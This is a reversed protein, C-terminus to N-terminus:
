LSENPSTTTLASRIDTRAFDDGVYLLPCGFEEATAYSFCDGFNLAASHFGKGFRQYAIAAREARTSTLPIIEAESAAILMKMEVLRQNRSAVIYAETVTAASILLRQSGDSLIDNCEAAATETKLVAMLASTDVVIM